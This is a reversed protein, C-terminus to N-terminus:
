VCVLRSSFITVSRGEVPSRSKKQGRWHQHLARKTNGYIPLKPPASLLGYKVPRSDTITPPASLLGYKVQRSDTITLFLQQGFAHRNKRRPPFTMRATSITSTTSLTSTKWKPSVTWTTSTTSPTSTTETTSTRPTAEIMRIMRWGSIWKPLKQVLFKSWLIRLARYRIRVM